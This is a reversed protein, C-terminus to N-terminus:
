GLGKNRLLIKLVVAEMSVITVFLIAVIWTLFEVSIQNTIFATLTILLVVFAAFAITNMLKKERSTSGRPYINFRM